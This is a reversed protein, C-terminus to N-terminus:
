EILNGASHDLLLQVLQLPRVGLLSLCGLARNLVGLILERDCDSV